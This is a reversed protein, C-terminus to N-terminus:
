SDKKSDESPIEGQGDKEFDFYLMLKYGNKDKQVNPILKPNIRNDVIVKNNRLNVMYVQFSQSSIGCAERIKRKVGPSMLYQQLLAEDTIKLSMEYRFRAITAILKTEKNSLKHIPKLFSYYSEFFSQLSKCPIRIVSDAIAKDM